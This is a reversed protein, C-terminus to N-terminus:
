WLADYEVDEVYLLEEFQETAEIYVFIKGYFYEKIAVTRGFEDTSVGRMSGACAITLKGDSDTVATHRGTKGDKSFELRCTPVKMM